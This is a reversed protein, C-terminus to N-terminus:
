IENSDGKTVTWVIHGIKDPTPITLCPHEDSVTETLRHGKYYLAHDKLVVVNEGYLDDLVRQVEEPHANIANVGLRVEKYGTNGYVIWNTTGLLTGWTSLRLGNQKSIRRLADTLEDYNM